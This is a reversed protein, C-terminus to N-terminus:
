AAPRDGYEDVDCFFAVAKRSSSIYDPVFSFNLKCGMGLNNLHSVSRLLKM